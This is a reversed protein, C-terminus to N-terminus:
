PGKKRIKTPFNSNYPKIDSKKCGQDASLATSFLTFFWPNEKKLCIKASFARKIYPIFQLIKPGRHSGIGAKEVNPRRAITSVNSFPAFDPM